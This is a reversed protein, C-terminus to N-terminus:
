NKSQIFNFYEEKTDLDISGLEFDVTAIDNKNKELISKAGLESKLDLIEEFRPRKFLVPIGATENYKAAIISKDPLEEATKILSKLLGANVYPMDSTMVIIADIANSVLYTGILGMKISGGMGEEWAKNDIVNVPMDKLEPVVKAKNAGVVVTIPFCPTEFVELILHKLMSTGFIPLTQKPFGMRSSAGAALIVIGVNM